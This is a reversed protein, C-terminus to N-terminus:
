SCFLIKEKFHIADSILQAKEGGVLMGVLELGFAITTGAGRSTVVRGDVVVPEDEYNVNGLQDKVSIHSTARKGQLLGHRALVTPAACIAAVIKDKRAARLLARAVAESEALRRSGEAGGPLVM